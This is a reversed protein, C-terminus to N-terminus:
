YGGGGGGGSAGGGGGSSAGTNGSAGSGLGGVNAVAENGTANISTSTDQSLNNATTVVEENARQLERELVELAENTSDDGSNAANMRVNEMQAQLLDSRLQAIEAQLALIEDQIEDFNIYEGSTRVLYQHSNTDGLAPIDYFLQNYLTFFQDVTVSAELTEPVSVIGLESFKTDITKVYQAKNFVEKRLDLREAM